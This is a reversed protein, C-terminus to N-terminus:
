LKVGFRAMIAVYLGYAAIMVVASALMAPVFRVGTRLLTPLVLFFILSPLVAWFISSSLEIIPETERVDLYLWTIALISTLPLSAIIAAFVTYRKAVEAVTAIVLASIIVRLLFQTM